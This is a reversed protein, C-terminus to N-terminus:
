RDYFCISPSPQHLADKTTGSKTMNFVINQIVKTCLIFFHLYNKKSMKEKSLYFVTLKKSNIAIRIKGFTPNKHFSYVNQKHKKERKSSLLKLGFIDDVNEENTWSQHSRFEDMLHQIISAQTLLLSLGVEKQM